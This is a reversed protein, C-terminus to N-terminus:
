PELTNVKVRTVTCQCQDGAQSLYVEPAVGGRLGVSDLTTAVLWEPWKMLVNLQETVCAVYVDLWAPCCLDSFMKTLVSPELPDHHRLGFVTKDSKSRM